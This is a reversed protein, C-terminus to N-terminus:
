ASCDGAIGGRTLAGAMDCEGCVGGRMRGAREGCAVCSGTARRRALEAEWEDHWGSGGGRDDTSKGPYNLHPPDRMGGCAACHNGGSAAEMAGCATCRGVRWRRMWETLCEIHAPGDSHDLSRDCYQCPARGAMKRAAAANRRAVPVGPQVSRETDFVM